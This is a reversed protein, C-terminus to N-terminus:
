FAPERVIQRRLGTRRLRLTLSTQQSISYGDDSLPGRGTLHLTFARGGINRISVSGSALVTDQALMPGPCRTRPSTVPAFSGRLRGDTGSLFAAGPGLPSQATCPTGQSISSLVTGGSEWDASGIVVLGRPNGRPDQGLAALFDAWPRTAGGIVTLSAHARQPAITGTVSGALGCSDLFQCSGPNGAISLAFQGGAQSVALTETVERKPRTKIGRPLQQPPSQTRPKGLTLRLTSTVTGAFGGAAFSRTGSLDVTTGGGLLRTLPLQIEPAASSVDGDLPGACRTTLLAGGSALLPMTVVGGNITATPSMFPNTADGCVDGGARQVHAAVVPQVQGDGLELTADYAIRGNRRFRDVAVLAGSGPGFVVTGHYDCLGQPACGTSPDGHFAVTLTGAFRAPIDITALTHGPGGFLTVSQASAAPVALTLTAIIGIGLRRM